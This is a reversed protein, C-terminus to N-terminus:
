TAWALGDDLTEKTFELHLVRRHRPHIAPASAHLLLPSMLMAHGASVPCSVEQTAAIHHRIQEANLKGFAHTGPLLRLAGNDVTTDDLHLRLAVISQLVEVPPQVHPLGDKETWPGFGPVNYRAKVTITLDQHWPVKWNAGPIKDFGTLKVARAGDGLIATIPELLAPTTALKRFIESHQLGHRFGGRQPSAGILRDAEDRLM